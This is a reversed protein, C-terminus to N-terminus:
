RGEGIIIRGKCLFWEGGSEVTVNVLFNDSKGEGVRSNGVLM